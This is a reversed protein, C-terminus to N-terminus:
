KWLLPLCELWWWWVAFVLTEEEFNLAFLGDTIYAATQYQYKVTNVFALFLVDLFVRSIFLIWLMINHVYQRYGNTFILAAAYKQTYFDIQVTHLYLVFVDFLQKWFSVIAKYM